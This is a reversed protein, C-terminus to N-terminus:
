VDAKQHARSRDIFSSIDELKDPDKMLMETVVGTLDLQNERDMGDLMGSFALITSVVSFIERKQEPGAVQLIRPISSVIEALQAQDTHVAELDQLLFSERGLEAEMESTFV